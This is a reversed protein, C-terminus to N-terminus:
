TRFLFVPQQKAAVKSSSSHDWSPEHQVSQTPLAIRGLQLQAWALLM